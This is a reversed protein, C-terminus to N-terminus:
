VEQLCQPGLVAKLEGYLDPTVRVSQRLQFVRVQSGSVLQLQVEADGEFRRLLQELAQM